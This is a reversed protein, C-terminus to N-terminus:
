WPNTRAKAQIEEVLANGAERRAHQEAEEQARSKIEWGTDTYNGVPDAEIATAKQAETDEVSTEPGFGGAVEDSGANDADSGALEGHDHAPASDKEAEAAAVAAALEAKNMDSRGEVDLEQAKEYLEEKTAETEPM